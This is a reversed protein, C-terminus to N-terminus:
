RFPALPTTYWIRLQLMAPAYFGCLSIATKAAGKTKTVPLAPLEAGNFLPAPGWSKWAYRVATPSDVQPAEVRVTVREGDGPLIRAGADVYVGDVGAVEFGSEGAGRAARAPRRVCPTPRRAM